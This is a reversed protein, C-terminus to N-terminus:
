QLLLYIGDVIGIIFSILAICLFIIGLVLFVKDTGEEYDEQTIEHPDNPNYKVWCTKGMEKPDCSVPSEASYREEGVYFTITPYYSVHRGVHRGSSDRRIHTITGETYASCRRDRQRSFWRSIGLCVPFTLCFFTFCFAVHWLVGLVLLVVTFVTYCILVSMMKRSLPHKRHNHIIQSWTIGLLALPLIVWVYREMWEFGPLEISFTM